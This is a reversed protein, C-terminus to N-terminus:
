RREELFWIYAGEGLTQQFKELVEAFNALNNHAIQIDYFKKFNQWHLKAKSMDGTFIARPFGEKSTERIRDLRNNDTQARLIDTMLQMTQANMNINQQNQPPAGAGGVGPQIQIGQPNVAVVQQPAGVIQQQGGAILPPAVPNQPQNRCARIPRPPGVRPRGVRPRGVRNNGAQLNGQHINGPQAVNLHFSQDHSESAETEEPQDLKETEQKIVINEKEIRHYVELWAQLNELINKTALNLEQVGFRLTTVRLPRLYFLEQFINYEFHRQTDSERKGLRRQCNLIEIVHYLIQRTVAQDILGVVGAFLVIDFEPSLQEEAPQFERILEHTANYTVWSNPQVQLSLDGQVLCNNGYNLLKDADSVTLVPNQNTNTPWVDIENTDTQVNAGSNQSSLVNIQAQPQNQSKGSSNDTDNQDNPDYGKVTSAKDDEYFDQPSYNTDVIDEQTHVATTSQSGSINSDTSRRDPHYSITTAESDVSKNGHLESDDFNIQQTVPTSPPEIIIDEPPNSQALVKPSTQPSNETPSNPVETVEEEKPIVSAQDGPREPTSSIPGQLATEIPTHPSGILTLQIDDSEELDSQAQAFIEDESDSTMSEEQAIKNRAENLKGKPVLAINQSM